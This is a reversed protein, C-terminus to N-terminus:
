AISNCMRPRLLHFQSCCMNVTESMSSSQICMFRVKQCLLWSLFLNDGSLCQLNSSKSPPPPNSGNILFCSSLTPLNCLVYRPIHLIEHFERFALPFVGFHIRQDAKLYPRISSDLPGNGCPKVM